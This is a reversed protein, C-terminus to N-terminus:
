DDGYVCGPRFVLGGYQTDTHALYFASRLMPWVRLSVIGTTRVASRCHRVSCCSCGSATICKSNVPQSYMSALYATYLGHHVCSVIPHYLSPTTSAMIYATSQSVICHRLSPPTSAMIYAASQSVISQHLSPPTSAMIYASNVPQCALRHVPRSTRM